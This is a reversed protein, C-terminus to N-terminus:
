TFNLPAKKLNAHFCAALGQQYVPFGAQFPPLVVHFGAQFPPLVIHFLPYTVSQPAGDFTM